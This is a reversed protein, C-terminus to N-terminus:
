RHCGAEAPKRGARKQLGMGGTLDILGARNVERHIVKGALAIDRLLQSLEGTAYAFAHQQNMIYRDLTTGLPLALLQPDQTTMTM